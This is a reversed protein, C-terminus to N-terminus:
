RRRRWLAIGALGSGFLLLATPEPVPNLKADGSTLEFQTGNGTITLVQTLSFLPVSGAAGSFGGGYNSTNFTVSGIPITQAYYANGNDEYAAYTVTGLGTSWNGNVQGIWAPFGPTMDRVSFEIVLVDLTGSTSMVNYSLDMTGAPQLPGATGVNTQVQWNGVGGNFSIRGLLPNAADGVGDDTIVVTAATTVDTIRMEITAAVAAQFSVLALAALMILLKFLHNIKMDKEM